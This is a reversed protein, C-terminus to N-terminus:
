IKIPSIPVKYPQEPYKRKEFTKATFVMTNTEEVM